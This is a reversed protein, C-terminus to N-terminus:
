ATGPPTGFSAARIAEAMEGSEERYSPGDEFEIAPLAEPGDRSRRRHAEGRGRPEKVVEYDVGTDDLAKQVRWCPHGSIKVWTAPCRHLKVAHGGRRPGVIGGHARDDEVRRALRPEGVDRLRRAPSSTRTSAQPSQPESTSFSPRPAGPVTSPCSTTARARPRGRADREDVVHGAALALAAAGPM